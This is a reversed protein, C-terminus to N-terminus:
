RLLSLMLRDAAPDYHADAPNLRGAMDFLALVVQGQGVPVRVLIPKEPNDIWITREGQETAPGTLYRDTIVCPLGNWRKLWEPDLGEVTPADGYPFARSCPGAEAVTMDFEALSHCSWEAPYLVVVRGGAEAIRRLAAV